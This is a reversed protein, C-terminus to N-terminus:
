LSAGLMFLDDVEKDTKGMLQQMMLVLPDTRSFYTAFEWADKVEQSGQLVAVEIADRLGLQNLAKRIQWPTLDPIRALEAQRIQEASKPEYIVYPVSDSELRYYRDASYDEPPVPEEVESIGMAAMVSPFMTLNGQFVIGNFEITTYPNFRKGDKIFM